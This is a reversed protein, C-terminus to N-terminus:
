QVGLKALAAKIQAEGDPDYGVFSAAVKGDKDIVYATPIGSVKYKATAVSQEGEAPDFLLTTTFEPHAKLFAAMDDKKDWSNVSLVTLGKGGLEDKIKQVHPMAMKCPGCWSAWFDILVVQGKLSALSVSKGDLTSLTFDPAPTGAALLAPSQPPEYATLGAPPTAAFVPQRRAQGRRLEQLRAHDAPGSRPPHDARASQECRGGLRDRAGRDRRATHRLGAPPGQRRRGRRPRRRDPQPAAVMPAPQTFLPGAINAALGMPMAPNIGSLAAPADRKVFHTADWQYLTKGDSVLTNSASTGTQETLKIKNPRALVLHTAVASAGAPQTQVVDVALTQAGEVASVLKQAPSQAVAATQAFAAQSFATLGLLPLVAALTRKQM